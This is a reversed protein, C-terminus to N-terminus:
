RKRTFGGPIGIGASLQQREDLNWSRGFTGVSRQSHTGGQWEAELIDLNHEIEDAIEQQLLTDMWTAALEIGLPMGDVLRCIRVVHRLDETKWGLNPNVSLARELFLEVAESNLIEDGQDENPLAMGGLTYSVEGYFALRERSTMLIKV